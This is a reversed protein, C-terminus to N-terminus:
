HLLYHVGHYIPDNARRVREFHHFLLLILRRLPNLVEFIGDEVCTVLKIDELLDVLSDALKVHVALLQTLVDLVLM